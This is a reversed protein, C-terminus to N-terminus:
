IFINLIEIGPEFGGSIRDLCTECDIVYRKRASDNHKDRRLNHNVFFIDSYKDLYKAFLNSLPPM